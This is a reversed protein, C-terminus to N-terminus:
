LQDLIYGIDVKLVPIDTEVINWVIEYDIGFYQHIIRNRLDSMERWPIQPFRAKIDPHIKVSAEGIIELSRCVARILRDNKIFDDFNNSSGEQLLYNCEDLIHRLFEIQSISM